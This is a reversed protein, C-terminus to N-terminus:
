SFRVELRRSTTFDASLSIDITHTRSLFSSVVVRFRGVTEGTRVVVSSPVSIAPHSSRLFVKLGIPLRPNNFRILQDHLRRLVDFSGLIPPPPPPPVPLNLEVTCDLARPIEGRQVYVYQGWQGQGSFGWWRIGQTASVITLIGSQMDTTGPAGVTIVAV